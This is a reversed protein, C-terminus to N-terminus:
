RSLWNATVKKQKIENIKDMIRGRKVPDTQKRAARQLSLLLRGTPTSYLPPQNSM